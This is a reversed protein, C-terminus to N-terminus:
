ICSLLGDFCFDSPTFGRDCWEQWGVYGSVGHATRCLKAGGCNSVSDVLKILRGAFVSDYRLAGVELQTNLDLLASMCPM